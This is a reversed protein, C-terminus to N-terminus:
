TGTEPTPAPNADLCAYDAQVSVPKLVQGEGTSTQFSIAGVQVNYQPVRTSRHQVGLEDTIVYCGEPTVSDHRTSSLLGAALLLVAVALVLVGLYNRRM